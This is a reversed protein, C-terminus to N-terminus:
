ESFGNRGPFDPALKRSNPMKLWLRLLKRKRGEEDFDEFGTRSHLVMYNNAFQIDGPELMMDLKIEDRHIIDDVLDLAAKQKESLPECKLEHGLEIYQRLYRCSLKGQYNSFIPSPTYEEDGLHSFYFPSYLVELLEPSEDLVANYIAAASVLSSMGGSKAKKLSLLGVVDSLDTHYPLYANTEYVRTRKDSSDGVSKVVGLMDGKPNQTVPRGMHVGLGYYLSALEEENYKEADLGRILLFGKGNELEENISAISEKMGDIPFDKKDFNPASLGKAKLNALARDLVEAEVDTLKYIWSLRGKLDCGKWAMEGDIRNNLIEKM